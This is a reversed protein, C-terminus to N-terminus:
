AGMHIFNVRQELDVKHARLLLASSQASRRFGIEPTDKESFVRKYFQEVVFSGDNDNMTWMTGIASRFGCFQMTTALYFSEYYVSGLAQAASHYVSLFALEMNPLKNKNEDM